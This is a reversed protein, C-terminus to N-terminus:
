YNWFLVYYKKSVKNDYLVICICKKLFSVLGNSINLVILVRCKMKYKCMKYDM